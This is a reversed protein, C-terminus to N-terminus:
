CSAPWTLRLVFENGDTALYIRRRLLSPGRRRLWALMLLPGRGHYSSALEANSPGKEASGAGLTVRARFTIGGVHVSSAERRNQGFRIACRGIGNDCEGPSLLYM